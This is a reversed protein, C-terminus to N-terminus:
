LEYDPHETIVKCDCLIAGNTQAYSCLPEHEEIPVADAIKWVTPFDIM